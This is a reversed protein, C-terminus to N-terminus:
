KKNMEENKSKKINEMKENNGFFFTQEKSKEQIEKLYKKNSANTDSNLHKRRLRHEMSIHHGSSMPRSLQSQTPGGAQPLAHKLEGSHPPPEEGTLVSGGWITNNNNNNNNSSNSSNNNNINNNEVCTLPALRTRERIVVICGDVLCSDLPGTGTCQGRSRIAWCRPHSGADAGTPRLTRPSESRFIAFFAELFGM